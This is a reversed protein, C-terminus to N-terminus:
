QDNGLSLPVVVEGTKCNPELKLYISECWRILKITISRIELFFICSLTYEDSSPADYIHLEEFRKLKPLYLERHTTWCNRTSSSGLAQYNEIGDWHIILIKLNGLLDGFCNLNELYCDLELMCLSEAEFSEIQVPVKYSKIALSKLQTCGLLNIKSLVTAHEIKFRKVQPPPEIDEMTTCSCNLLEIEQLSACSDKFVKPIYGKTWKCDYLSLFELSPLVPAKPVADYDPFNAHRLSLFRLNTFKEFSSADIQDQYMNKLRLNTILLRFDIIIANLSEPNSENLLQSSDKLYLNKAAKVIDKDTSQPDLLVLELTAKITVWGYRSMRRRLSLCDCTWKDSYETNCPLTVKLNKLRQIHCKNLKTCAHAFALQSEPDLFLAITMVMEDPIALISLRPLTQQTNYITRKM